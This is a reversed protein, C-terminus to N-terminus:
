PASGCGICNLGLKTQTKLTRQPARVIRVPHEAAPAERDCACTNTKASRRQLGRKLAPPLLLQL